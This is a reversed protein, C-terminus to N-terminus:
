VYQMSSELSRKMYYIYRHISDIRIWEFAWCMHAHPSTQALTNEEWDSNFNYAYSETIFSSSSASLFDIFLYLCTYSNHAAGHVGEIGQM